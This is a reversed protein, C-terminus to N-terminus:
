AWGGSSGVPPLVRQVVPRRQRHQRHLHARNGDPRRGDEMRSDGWPQDDRVDKVEGRYGGCMSTLDRLKIRSYLPYQDALHVEREVARTDLTCRGDEVLLGLVTSTFTKTCSWIPHFADANPGECILYGNRIIVLEEAGDPGFQQEMYDVADHLKLADVGQSEPTARQWTDGPFVAEARSTEGALLVSAL